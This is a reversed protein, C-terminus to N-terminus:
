WGSSDQLQVSLVGRTLGVQVCESHRDLMVGVTRCSSGSPWGRAVALAELQSIVAAQDQGDTGAVDIERVCLETAGGSCGDNMDATVTLGSPLPLMESADPTAPPLGNFGYPGAVGLAGLTVVVCYAWCLVVGAVGRRGDGRRRRRAPRAANSRVGIALTAASALALLVLLTVRAGPFVWHAAVAAEALLLGLLVGAVKWGLARDRVTSVWLPIALALILVVM